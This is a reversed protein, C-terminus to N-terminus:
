GEGGRGNKLLWRALQLDEPADIDVSDAATMLYPIVLPGYFSNEAQIIETRSVLVAPGNRAHMVAHVASAIAVIELLTFLLGYLTLREIDYALFAALSSM